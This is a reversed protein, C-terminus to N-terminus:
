VLGIVKRCIWELLLLACIALLLWWTAWLPERESREEFRPELDLHNLFERAAIPSLVFGGSADAISGLLATDCLPNRLEVSDHPDIAIEAGVPDTFNERRLLTEIRAGKPELRINGPPLGVVVAHYEGPVSKDPELRTRSVIRDDSHAVLTIDERSVPQGNLETLRLTAQVTSGHPYRTKDTTLRVTKSGGALDRAVIWRLMQGWFRYHYRDGHRYRLKHIAPAAIYVVRGRGVYQWSLFARREGRARNAQEAEILVNATPKPVSTPSLDYVPVSQSITQWLAASAGATSALQVPPVDRGEPTVGLVYGQKSAARPLSQFDVPLLDGFESGSYAQPMANEGAIVVVNGGQILYQKVMAQHAPTLQGQTLDGLIVVRFRRWEELSEPLRPKPPRQPRNPYSHQPSFLASESKVKRDRKFLNLLYRFEWRPLDDALFVRMEDDIVDFRITEANNEETFEDDVAKVRLLFERMGMEKAHWKLNVRHDEMPSRISVAKRDLVKEGAALEVIVREGECDHAGVMADISLVDKKIVAKPYQVHHLFLDRRLKTDGIPVIAFPVGSLAPAMERPDRGSNHAGDTVILGAHLRGASVERAARDMVSGLSTGIGPPAPDDILYKRWTEASTPLADSDFVFRGFRVTDEQPALWDRELAEIWPTVTEIRSPITGTTDNTRGGSETVTIEEHRSYLTNALSRLMRDAQRFRTDIGDLTGSQQGTAEPDLKALTPAIEDALLRRLETLRAPEGSDFQSAPSGIADLHDECARLASRIKDLLREGIEVRISEEEGPPISSYNMLGARAGSLAGLARDLLLRAPAASTTSKLDDWRMVNGSGDGRDVITMSASGDAFLGFGKPLTRKEEILDTPGALAWMVLVLVITRLGLLIWVVNPRTAYRREKWALLAFVCAVLFGAAFIWSAPFRGEFAFTKVTDTWDDPM